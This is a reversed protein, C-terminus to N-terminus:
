IGRDNRSTSKYIDEKSKCKGGAESCAGACARWFEGVAMACIKYLSCIALVSQRIADATRKVLLRYECEMAVSKETEM